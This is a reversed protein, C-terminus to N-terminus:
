SQHNLLDIAGLAKRITEVIERTNSTRVDNFGSYPEKWMGPRDLTEAIKVLVTHFASQMAPIEKFTSTAIVVLAAAPDYAAGLMKQFAISVSPTRGAAPGAGAPTVARELAQQVAWLLEFEFRESAKGFREANLSHATRLADPTVRRLAPYRSSMASLFRLADEEAGSSASYARASKLESNDAMARARSFSILLNDHLFHQGNVLGSRLSRITDFPRMIATDVANFIHDGQKPTSASSM